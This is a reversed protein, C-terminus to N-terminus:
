INYPNITRRAAVSIEKGRFILFDLSSSAELVQLDIPEHTLVFVFNGEVCDRKPVSEPWKIPVGKLPHSQTALLRFRVAYSLDLGMEWARTVLITKGTTDVHLVSVYVKDDESKCDYKIRVYYSDGATLHLPEHQATLRFNDSDVNWPSASLRREGQRAIFEYKRGASVSWV